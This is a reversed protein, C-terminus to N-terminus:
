SAEPGPSRMRRPTNFGPRYEVTDAAVGIAQALVFAGKHVAVNCDPHESRANCEAETVGDM